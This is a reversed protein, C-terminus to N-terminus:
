DGAQVSSAVLVAVERAAEAFERGDLVLSQEAWWHHIRRGGIDSDDEEVWALNPLFGYFCHTKQLRRNGEDVPMHPVAHLDLFPGYLRARLAYAFTSNSSTLRFVDAAVRSPDGRHIGGLLLADWDAPLNQVQSRFRQALRPDFVVDD